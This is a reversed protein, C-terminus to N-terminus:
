AELPPLGFARRIFSDPTMDPDQTLWALVEDDVKITVWGSEGPVPEPSSEFESGPIRRAEIAAYTTEHITIRHMGEEM